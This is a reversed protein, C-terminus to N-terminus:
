VLPTSSSSSSSPSSAPPAGGGIPQPVSLAVSANEGKKSEDVVMPPTPTTTTPQTDTITPLQQAPPIPKTNTNTAKKIWTRHLEQLQKRFSDNPNVVPRTAEMLRVAREFTVPSSSSSHHHHEGQRMLWAICMAASRSIGASCHVLVRGRGTKIARQLPTIVTKPDVSGDGLRRALPDPRPPASGPRESAPSSLSSAITTTTSPTTTDLGLRARTIFNLATEIFPGLQQTAIDDMKLTCWGYRGKHLM